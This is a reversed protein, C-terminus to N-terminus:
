LRPFSPQDTDIKDAFSFDYRDAFPRAAKLDDEHPVIKVEPPPPTIRDTPRFGPLVEIWRMIPSFSRRSIPLPQRDHALEIQMVPPKLPLDPTPPQWDLDEHSQAQGSIDEFSFPNELTKRSYHTARPPLNDQEPALLIPLRGKVLNGRAFIAFYELDTLDGFAWPAIIPKDESMLREGHNVAFAGTHSQDGMSSATTKMIYSIPIEPLRKALKEQTDTDVTRLMITSNMNGLLMNASDVSGMRAAYDSLTQTAVFLRMGAGRGKNMLQILQETAVEAAEDVIINIYGNGARGFNYNNGALSALDALIMQGMARGVDPDSLTDLGIYCGGGGDIVQKLSIVKGSKPMRGVTPDPSFLTALPGACLKGVVPVLSAVMKKFHERDHLLLSILNNMEASDLSPDRSSVEQYFLAGQTAMKEPDMRRAVSDNRRGGASGSDMAAKMKTVMDPGVDYAWGSLARVCLPGFGESLSRQVDMITPNTKSMEVAYFIGLLANQSFSQFVDGTASSPIISALRSALESARQRSALPNIAASEDIFAPHFFSFDHSRGARMYAAEANNKLEHDGKPDIIITPEGRLICQTVILDMLRTKGAGTAGVIHVHGKSEDDPFYQREEGSVGVGHLYTAGKRNQKIEAMRSPARQLDYIEQAHIPTWEFGRGMFLNDEKMSAELEDLTFFNQEQRALIQMRNYRKRAYTAQYLSIAFFVATMPAAMRFPLDSYFLLTLLCLIGCVAWSTTLWLEYNPRYDTEYGLKM